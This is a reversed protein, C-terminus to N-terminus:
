EFDEFVINHKILLERESYLQEKTVDITKQVQEQSLKYNEEDQAKIGQQIISLNKQYDEDLEFEWHANVPKFKKIMIDHNEMRATKDNFLMKLLENHFKLKNLNANYSKTTSEIFQEFKNNDSEESTNFEEKLQEEM